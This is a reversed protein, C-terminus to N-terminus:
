EAIVEVNRGGISELFGAAEEATFDKGFSEIALLFADDTVGAFRPHQFVPHYFRPLGNIAFMGFVAGFAAFLVTLEFTVPISFEFAFFPKGGIVLPYAVSGTWWQLALAATAGLVGMAFVLYGLKSRKAGMAADIGHVPFPSYADLKEWGAECARRAAEVLAEPSGFEAVVGYITGEAKPAAVAGSGHVHDM